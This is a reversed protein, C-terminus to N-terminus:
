IDAERVELEFHYVFMMNLNRFPPLLGLLANYLDNERKYKKNIIGKRCHVFQM